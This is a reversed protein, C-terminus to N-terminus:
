SGFIGLAMNPSKTTIGQIVGEIALVKGQHLPPPSDPTGDHPYEDKSCHRALALVQKWFGWRSWGADLAPCDACRGTFFRSRPIAYVGGPFAHLQVPGPSIPQRVVAIM